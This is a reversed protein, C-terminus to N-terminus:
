VGKPDERGEAVNGRLGAEAECGPSRSEASGKQDTRAATGFEFSLTESRQTHAELGPIM